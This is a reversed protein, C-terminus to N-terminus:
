EHTFRRAEKVWEGVGSVQASYVGDEVEKEGRRKAEKLADAHAQSDMVRGWTDGRKFHYLTSFTLGDTRRPDVREGKPM